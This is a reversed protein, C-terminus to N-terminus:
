KEALAVRRIINAPKERQRNNGVKDPAIDSFRKYHFTIRYKGLAQCLTVLLLYSTSKIKRPGSKLISAREAFTSLAVHSPPTSRALSPVFRFFGYCRIVRLLTLYLQLRKFLIRRDMSKGVGVLTTSRM